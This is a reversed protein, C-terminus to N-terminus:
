GGLVQPLQGDSGAGGRAEKLLLQLGEILRQVGIHAGIERDSANISPMVNPYLEELMHVLPEHASVIGRLRVRDLEAKKRQAARHEGLHAPM